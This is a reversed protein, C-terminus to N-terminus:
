FLTVQKRLPKQLEDQKFLKIMGFIGDYGPIRIVNGTRMRHIAEALQPNFHHIAEIPTEKLLTFENGFQSIADIYANMVKKSETGSQHIESLIEQLPIIYHFAAAKAPKIPQPRDALKEIRHMVGITLSKKCVPCINNYKISEKPEFCINCKRHGDYSYKGEEPFFEYTGSFGEGTKVANFLGEYSLETNFLNAERGLKQPSHADSSSMMTYQDLKSCRWNMAPDSSLGTEIAFIHPTLDRFCEEVSDYGGKSGLTSFWPTWAHAPVLYAQDNSELVIEFLDRSSITITPRGDTALNTLTSLKNNIHAVTDLDPAYVLNHNKRSKSNYNYITCIETSLCFRVDIHKVKIGPLAPTTPPDKLKFFGNGDPELKEQIERFWAPHTFDGTGVLHIGKIQAWQYITELTLHKSTAYAYHSHTHLDAIYLM